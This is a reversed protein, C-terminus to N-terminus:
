ITMFVCQIYNIEKRFARNWKCAEDTVSPLNIGAVIGMEVKFLLAAVHSCVEGPRNVFLIKIILFHM